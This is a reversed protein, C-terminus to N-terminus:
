GSSDSMVTRVPPSERRDFFQDINIVYVKPHAGFKEMLAGEFMVNGSYGFGLLFYKAPDSAFWKGTAPTSFAIQMRSTGLFLVDANAMSDQTPSELGFWFAGHEYDAYGAAQCYALYRDSNYGDALCAFIGETRLKYAYAVLMAGLVVCIYLAPRFGPKVRSGAVSDRSAALATEM